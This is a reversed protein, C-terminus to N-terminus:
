ELECIISFGNQELYKKNFYLIRNIVDSVGNFEILLTIIDSLGIGVEKGTLALRVLKGTTKKSVIYQNNSDLVLFNFIIVM